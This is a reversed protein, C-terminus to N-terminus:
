VQPDMVVICSKPPTPVAKPCKRKPQDRSKARTYPGVRMFLFENFYCDTSPKIVYSKVSVSSSGHGCYMIKSTDQSPRHVSEKPSTMARPEHTFHGKPDLRCSKCNSGLACSILGSSEIWRDFADGSTSNGAINPTVNEVCRAEGDLTIKPVFYNTRVRAWAHSCIAALWSAPGGHHFTKSPHRKKSSRSKQGLGM